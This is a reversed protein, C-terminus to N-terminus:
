PRRVTVIVRGSGQTSAGPLVQLRLTDTVSIPYCVESLYTGPTTPDTENSAFINGAITTQGLTLMATPDNFATEIIVQSEIITSGFALSGFDIVNPSAYTFDQEFLDENEGGGGGSEAALEDLADQVNTPPTSWDGPISPTYTVKPATITTPRTFDLTDANPDTFDSTGM